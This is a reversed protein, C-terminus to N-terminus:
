ASDADVTTLVKGGSACIANIAGRFLNQKTIEYSGGLRNLRIGKNLVAAVGLGLYIDEDSDNILCAYVRTANAAMAVTTVAGITVGAHAPAAELYSDTAPFVVNGDPDLIGAAYGTYAMFSALDDDKGVILTVSKGAQATNTVFIRYFAGCEGGFYFGRTSRLDYQPATQKNFRISCSGNIKSVLISSGDVLLEAETRAVTLDITIPSTDPQVERHKANHIRAILSNM